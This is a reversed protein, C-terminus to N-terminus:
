SEEKNLCVVCDDVDDDDVVSVVIVVVNVFGSAEPQM